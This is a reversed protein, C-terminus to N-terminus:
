AGAWDRLPRASIGSAELLTCREPPAHLFAPEGSTRPPAGIRRIVLEQGGWLVHVQTVDGLFVLRMIRVPWVNVEGAPREAALGLHVTRISIM